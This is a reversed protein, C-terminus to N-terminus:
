PSKILRPKGLTDMAALIGFYALNGVAVWRLLTPVDPYFWVVLPLIIMIGLTFTITLGRLRTARSPYAFKIPVFHLISFIIIIAANFWSPAFFVFVLYFVVINRMVPFGIFYFDDSIMGEKGYYISSVLLILFTLPLNWAPNVLEAAYFFYAPIVAYTAFDIVNDIMKGSINPLVDKVRFKRALTGDVGDIFLCVLLWAMATRWNKDTIALIAMFGVLLGSATFLHVSWALVKDLFTYSNSVRLNVLTVHKKTENKCPLFM